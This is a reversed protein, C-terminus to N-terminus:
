QCLTHVENDVTVNHCREFESPNYTASGLTAILMAVVVILMALGIVSCIGILIRNLDIM